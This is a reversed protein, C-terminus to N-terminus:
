SSEDDDEEIFASLFAFLLLPWVVVFAFLVMAVVHAGGADRILERWPEPHRRAHWRLVALMLVGHLAGALAWMKALMQWESM